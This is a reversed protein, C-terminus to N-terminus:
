GTRGTPVTALVVVAIAVGHRRKYSIEVHESAVPLFSNLFNCHRKIAKAYGRMEYPFPYPCSDSRSSDPNSCHSQHCLQLGVVSASVLRRSGWCREGWNAAGWAGWHLPPPRQVRGSDKQLGRQTAWTYFTISASMFTCSQWSRLKPRYIM